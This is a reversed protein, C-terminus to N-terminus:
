RDDEDIGLDNWLKERREELERADRMMIRKEFENIPEGKVKVKEESGKKEGMEDGKEGGEDERRKEWEEAWGRRVEKERGNEGMEKGKKEEGKEKKIRGLVINIARKCTIIEDSSINKGGVLRKIHGVSGAPYDGDGSDKILLEKLRNWGGFVDQVTKNIPSEGQLYFERSM